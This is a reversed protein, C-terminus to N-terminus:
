ERIVSPILLNLLNMKLRSMLLLQHTILSQRINGRSDFVIGMNESMVEREDSRKNRWNRM